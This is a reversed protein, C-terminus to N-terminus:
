LSEDEIGKHYHTVSEHRTPASVERRVAVTFVEGEESEQTFEIEGVEGSQVASSAAYFLKLLDDIDLM